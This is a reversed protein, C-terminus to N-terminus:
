LSCTRVASPRIMQFTDTEKGETRREKRRERTDLMSRLIMEGEIERNGEGRKCANHHVHSNPLVCTTIGAQEKQERGDRGREIEIKGDSMCLLVRLGFSLMGSPFVYVGDARMFDIVEASLLDLFCSNREHFWIRNAQSRVERMERKTEALISETLANPRIFTRAQKTPEGERSGTRRRVGGGRETAASTGMDDRGASWFYARLNASEYRKTM